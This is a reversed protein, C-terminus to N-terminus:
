PDHQSPGGNGIPSGAAAHCMGAALSAHIRCCLWIIVSKIVTQRKRIRQSGSRRRERIVILPGLLARFKRYTGTDAESPSSNHMCLPAWPTPSRQIVRLMARRKKSFMKKIKEEGQVVRVADHLSEDHNSSMCGHVDRSADGSRM